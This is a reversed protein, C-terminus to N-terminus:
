KQLNHRQLLHEIREMIGCICLACEPLDHEELFEIAVFIDDPQKVDDLSLVVLIEVHDKIEHLSIQV